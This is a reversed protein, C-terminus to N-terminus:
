RVKLMSPVSSSACRAAISSVTAVALRCTRRACLAAPAPTRVRQELKGVLAVDVRNARCDPARTYSRGIMAKATKGATASAKGASRSASPPGPRGAPLERTGYRAVAADDDLPVRLTVGRVCDNEAHDVDLQAAEVAAAGGFQERRKRRRRDRLIAASPRCAGSIAPAVANQLQLSSAHKARQARRRCRRVDDVDDRRADEDVVHQQENAARARNLDQDADEHEDPQEADRRQQMEVQEARNQAQEDDARGHRNRDDKLGFQAAREFLDAPAAEKAHLAVLPSAPRPRGSSRAIAASARVANAARGCGARRASRSRAASRAQLLEAFAPRHKCARYRSSSSSEIKAGADGSCSPATMTRSPRSRPQRSSEAAPRVTAQRAQADARAVAGRETQGLLGVGDDEDNRFLGARDGDSAAALERSGDFVFLPQHLHQQRDRPRRALSAPAVVQDRM